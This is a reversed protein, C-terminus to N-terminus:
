DGESTDATALRRLRDRARALADPDAIFVNQQVAVNEANIAAAGRGGYGLKAATKDAIELLLRPDEVEDVKEALRDYAAHAIGLMKQRLPIVTAAFAQARKRELLARFADSHIIISLWAQTVGFQRACAALPKDPHAILWDAIAEHRHSIKHIAPKRAAAM